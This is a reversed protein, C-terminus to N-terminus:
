REETLRCGKNIEELKKLLYECLKNCETFAEDSLVILTHGKHKIKDKEVENKIERILKDDYDPANFGIDYRVLELCNLCVAYKYWGGENAEKNIGKSILERLRMLFDTLEKM